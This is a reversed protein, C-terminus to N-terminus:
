LGPQREWLTIPRHHISAFLAGYATRQKVNADDVVQVDLLNGLHPARVLDRYSQVLARDIAAALASLAPTRRQTWVILHILPDANAECFCIDEPTADYDLVYVAKITEDLMGLAEAIQKALDYHYRSRTAGDGQQLCRVVQEDDVGMRQACCGLATNLATGAITDARPLQWNPAAAEVGVPEREVVSHEIM